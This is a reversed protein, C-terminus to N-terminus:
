KELEEILNELEAEIQSYIASMESPCDSTWYERLMQLIGKLANLTEHKNM